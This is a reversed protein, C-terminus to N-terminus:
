KSKQKLTQSPKRKPYEQANTGAEVEEAKKAAIRSQLGWLEIFGVASSQDFTSGSQFTSLKVNYLSNPSSRGVVRMGGKYLKLKVSGTARRQTARIFSDLAFRLPEMWLGSYVLWAWEREVGAKFSLEHRTLVLQELDRHAETIALGAPAEYVERSKIGVLRDEIHDIIGVGHKGVFENVYQILELDDKEVGNVTRPIGDVFGLELYGATDPADEPPTVWEFASNPPETRPDELPGSEISRGWLNQDISFISNSPNIKIGHEKAYILEQDRSMSWERVPAIVKLSPNMSRVTVDMRVQDNGKGTCGHAVATAGEKEAVEVLKEAILPRGLATALPYKGEYMGNARISPQVYNSIFEEKADVQYHKAAGTAKSRQAIEKFDDRQGLDLTLTIVEANYKEELWKVCVSTDLGGSYALVIKEKM